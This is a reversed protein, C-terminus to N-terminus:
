GELDRKRELFEERDLEGRAYREELVELAKRRAPPSPTNATSDRSPTFIWKVLAVIGVLVLVWFLIMLIWGLGGFPMPGSGWPHWYDGHM